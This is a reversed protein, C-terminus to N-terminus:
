LKPIATVLSLVDEDDRLIWASILKYSRNNPSNLVYEM